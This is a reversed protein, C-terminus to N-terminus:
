WKLVLLNEEPIKAVKPIKNPHKKRFENLMKKLNKGHVVIRQNLIIVYEGEHKSLDAGAFWKLDNDEMKM